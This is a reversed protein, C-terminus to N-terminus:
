CLGSPPLKSIQPSLCCLFLFGLLRIKEGRVPLCGGAGWRKIKRKERLRIASRGWGCLDAEGFGVSWVIKRRGQGRGFVFWAVGKKEKVAAEVAGARWSSAPRGRVLGKSGWGKGKPQEKERLGVVRLDWEM